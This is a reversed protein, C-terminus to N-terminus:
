SSTTGSMPFFYEMISSLRQKLTPCKEKQEASDFSREKTIVKGEPSLSYNFNRIQDMINEGTLNQGHGSEELENQIKQYYRLGGFTKRVSINKIQIWNQSSMYSARINM